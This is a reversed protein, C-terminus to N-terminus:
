LDHAVSLDDAVDHLRPFISANRLGEHETDIASVRIRKTSANLTISTASSISADYTVALAVRGISEYVPQRTSM